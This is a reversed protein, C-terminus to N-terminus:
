LRGFSLSQALVSDLPKLSTNESKPAFLDSSKKISLHATAITAQYIIPYLCIGSGSGSAGSSPTEETSM